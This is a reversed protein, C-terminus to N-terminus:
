AQAVTLARVDKAGAKRLVGACERITAGTTFVDDVLLVVKGRIREPDPVAYAGRVNARREHRELSTQAATARIKKLARREVGIGTLRGIEGAIVAAQNFGRERLRRRHLPVPVLRDAEWWLGEERRLAERAFAALEGALPRCGRFKLLLLADKLVAGYRGASRHLSFAPPEDLCSGCLHDGGSGEFFRGCCPCLPARHPVIGDLCKRCMIREGPKDLLLGCTKCFSPFFAIEAM